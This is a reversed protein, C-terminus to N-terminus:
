FLRALINSSKEVTHNSIKGMAGLLCDTPLCKLAMSIDQEEDPNEPMGPQGTDSGTKIALNCFPSSGLERDEVTRVGTETLLRREGGM